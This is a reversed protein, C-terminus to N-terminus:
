LRLAQKKRTWKVVMQGRLVNDQYECISRAEDQFMDTVSTVCKDKGEVGKQKYMRLVNSGM